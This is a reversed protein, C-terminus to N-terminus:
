KKMGEIAKLMNKVNAAEANDPDVELFKKFNEGAKAYDGKNLYAFGLRVLPKSWTPKISLALEYYKIADDIRQNSFFIEAVNFAGAEDQPAIALAETFYKAATDTDNKRLCIEGLGSLASSATSKDSSYDASKAKIKDLVAKYEAEAKDYEGKQVYLASINTRIKYVDPYISSFEEFAALAGDLDGAKILANGKEALAMAQESSKGGEAAAVPANPDLKRLTLRIPPNPALQSVDQDFYCDNYGAMTATVRWVGSGLGGFAFHGKKNTKTEFTTVTNKSSVAVVKAGGIPNGSEDIVDGSMRGRGLNQQAYMQISAAMLVALTGVFIKRFSTKM